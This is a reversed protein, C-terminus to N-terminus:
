VCAYFFSPFHNLYANKERAGNERERCLIYKTLINTLQRDGVIVIKCSIQNSQCCDTLTTENFHLKSKYNSRKPRSDISKEEGEEEEEERPLYTKSFFNVIISFVTPCRPM